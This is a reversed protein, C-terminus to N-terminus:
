QNRQTGTSLWAWNQMVGHVTVQWGGRGMSNELCSDQLPNSNGVGPSRGSGPISGTDRAEGGSVPSNKITGGLFGKSTFIYIYIYINTVWDHGVRQSGMSQLRSPEETWPIKWDLISSNMIQSPSVISVTLSKIKKPELIVATPSQLWSILLRKSRALFPIVFSCLTNFLQSMMKSVFTQITLAVTKGTTMYPHSLQVRLFGSRRLVRTSFFVRSLGKSLLSILGTFGLPFWGQINM